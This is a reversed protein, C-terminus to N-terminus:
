PRSLNAVAAAGPTQTRSGITIKGAAKNQRGQQPPPPQQFLTQTIRASDPNDLPDLSQGTFLGVTQRVHYPVPLEKSMAETAEDFLATGITRHLAPYLLQLDTVDQQTLTGNLMRRAVADVPDLALHLKANLDRIDQESPVKSVGALKEAPTTPPQVANVATQVYPIVRGSTALSGDVVGPVHQAWRAHEAILGQTLATPNNVLGNLANRKEQYDESTIYQPVVGVAAMVGRPLAMEGWEAAGSVASAFLNRAIKQAGSVWNNTEATTHLIAPLTDIPDQLFRGFGTLAGPDAMLRKLVNRMPGFQGGALGGLIAGVGSNDEGGLLYGAGAGLVFRGLYREVVRDNLLNGLRENQTLTGVQGAINAERAAKIDEMASRAAQFTASTTGLKGQVSQLRMDRAQQAMPSQLWETAAAKAEASEFPDQLIQQSRELQRNLDAVASGYKGTASAEAEAQTKAALDHAKQLGKAEIREGIPAVKSAWLDALGRAGGGLVGGLIASTATNGFAEGATDHNTGLAARSLADEGSLAAGELAGGAAAAGLRGVVGASEGLGAVARGARAAIGPATAEGVGPILAPVVMGAIPGVIGSAIPHAEQRQQMAEPTTLGLAKEALASGGFTATSLGSELAALAADPLSGRQAELAADRAVKVQYATVEDPSAPRYGDRLAANYQDPPAEYAHGQANLMLVTQTTDPM